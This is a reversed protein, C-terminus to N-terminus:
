ILSSRAINPQGSKKKVRKAIEAYAKDIVKKIPGEARKKANRWAAKILVLKIPLVDTKFHLM